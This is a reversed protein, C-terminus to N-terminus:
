LDKEQLHRIGVWTIDQSTQQRTLIKGRAAKKM